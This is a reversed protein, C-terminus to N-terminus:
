LPYLNEFLSARSSTLTFLCLDFCFLFRDMTKYTNVLWMVDGSEAANPKEDALVDGSILPVLWTLADVFTKRCFEKKPYAYDPDTSLEQLGWLGYELLAKQVAASVQVNSSMLRKREEEDGNATEKEKKEKNKKTKEKKEPEKRNTMDIQSPADGVARDLEEDCLDIAKKIAAALKIEIETVKAMVTPSINEMAKKLEDIDKRSKTIKSM